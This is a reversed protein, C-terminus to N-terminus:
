KSPENELYKSFYSSLLPASIDTLTRKMSKSKTFAALALACGGIILENTLDKQKSKISALREQVRSFRSAKATEVMYKSIRTEGRLALANGIAELNAEKEEVM